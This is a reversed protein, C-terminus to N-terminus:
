HEMEPGTSSKLSFNEANMSFNDQRGIITFLKFINIHRSTLDGNEETLLM